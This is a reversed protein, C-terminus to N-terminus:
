LLEIPSAVGCLPNELRKRTGRLKIEEEPTLELLFRLTKSSLGLDGVEWGRNNWIKTEVPRSLGIQRDARCIVFQDKCISKLVRPWIKIYM